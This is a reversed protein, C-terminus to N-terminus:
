FNGYMNLYDGLEHTIEWDNLMRCLEEVENDIFDIEEQSMKPEPIDLLKNWDPKGSFLEGDWWVTGAQLAESETRSMEPLMSRYVDMFPKTLYQERLSKLNLIALCAFGLILILNWLGSGAGFIIYALLWAGMALTSNQLSLRKYAATMFVAFFSVIWLLTTM